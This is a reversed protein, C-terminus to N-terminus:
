NRELESLLHYRGKSPKFPFTTTTELQKMQPHCHRLFAQASQPYNCNPRSWKWPIKYGMFRYVDGLFHEIVFLQEMSRLRINDRGHDCDNWETEITLEIIAICIDLDFALKNLERWTNSDKTWCPPSHILTECSGLMLIFVSIFKSMVLSCHPCKKIIKTLKMVAKHGEELDYKTLRPANAYDM